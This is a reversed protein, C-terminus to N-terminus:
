LFKQKSKIIEYIKIFIFIFLLFLWSAWAGQSNLFYLNM